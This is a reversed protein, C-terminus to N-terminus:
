RHEMGLDVLPNSLYTHGKSHNTPMDVTPNFDGASEEGADPNCLTSYFGLTTEPGNDM